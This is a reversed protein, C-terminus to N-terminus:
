PIKWNQSRGLEIHNDRIITVGRTMLLSRYLPLCIELFHDLSYLQDKTLKGAPAKGWEELSGILNLGVNTGHDLQYLIQENDTDNRADRFYISVLENINYIIKGKYPFDYLDENNMSIAKERLRIRIRDIDNSIDKKGMAGINLKFIMQDNPNSTIQGYQLNAYINILLNCLNMIISKYARSSRKRAMHNLVIITLLGGGGASALIRLYSSIIM